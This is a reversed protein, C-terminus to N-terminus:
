HLRYLIATKDAGSSALWKGDPSIAVCQMTEAEAHYEQFL